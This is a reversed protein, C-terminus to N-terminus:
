SVPQSPLVPAPATVVPVAAPNAPPPTPVANITACAQAVVSATQGIVTTPGYLTDLIAVISGGSQCFLQGKAVISAVTTNKAAAVGALTAVAATVPVPVVPAPTACGALLALGALIPLRTM